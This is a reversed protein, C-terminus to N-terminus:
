VLVVSFSCAPTAFFIDSVKKPAFGVHTIKGDTGRGYGTSRFIRSYIRSYSVFDGKGPLLFVGSFRSKGPNKPTSAVPNSGAAEAHRGLELFGTDIRIRLCGNQFGVM